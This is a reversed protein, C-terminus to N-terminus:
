GGMGRETGTESRHVALLKGHAHPLEGCLVVVGLPADVLPLLLAVPRLVMHVPDLVEKDPPRWPVPTRAARLRICIALARRSTCVLLLFRPQLEHLRLVEHALRVHADLITLFAEAMDLPLARTCLLLKLVQLIVRLTHPAVRM